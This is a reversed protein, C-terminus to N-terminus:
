YEVLLLLYELTENEQFKWPGLNYASKLKYWPM